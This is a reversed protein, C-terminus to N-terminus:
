EGGRSANRTNCSHRDHGGHRTVTGDVLADGFLEGYGEARGDECDDIFGMEVGGVRLTGFTGFSVEFEVYDGREKFTESEELTLAFDVLNEGLLKVGM